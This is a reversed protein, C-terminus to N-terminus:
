YYKTRLERLKAYRNIVDIEEKNPKRNHAGHVQAICGDRVEITVLPTDKEKRLFIITCENDIVRKIYSSVCHNLIDGERKLDDSCKPCVIHYGNYTYPKFTEYRSKFMQESEANVKIKHNRSTIDHTQKLYSSYLTPVIGDADCMRLYDRLEEIFDYVSSFGQDIVQRFVYSIFHRFTYYKGFVEWGDYYNMMQYCIDNDRGYRAVEIGNFVLDEKFHKCEKIYDILEQGQLFSFKPSSLNESIEVLIKAGGEIKLVEDYVDKSVNLLKYVPLAQQYTEELMQDKIEDPCTKLIIEFAKNAICRERLERFDLGGKYDVNFMTKIFEQPKIKKLADNIKWDYYDINSM